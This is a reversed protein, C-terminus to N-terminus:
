AEKTINSRRTRPKLLKEMAGLRTELSEVHSLYVRNQEVLTKNQAVIEDYQKRQEAQATELRTNENRVLQLQQDLNLIKTDKLNGEQQLASVEKQLRDIDQGRQDALASLGTVAQSEAQLSLQKDTSKRQANTAYIVGLVSLSAAIVGGLFLLFIQLVPLWGM